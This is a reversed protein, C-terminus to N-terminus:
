NLRLNLLFISRATKIATGMMVANYTKMFKAYIVTNDGDSIIVAGATATSNPRRTSPGNAKRIGNPTESAVNPQASLM